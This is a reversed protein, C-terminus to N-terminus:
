WERASSRNWVTEFVIMSDRYSAARGPVTAVHVRRFLDPRADFMPPFISAVFDPHTADLFDITTKGARRFRLAEPTVLGEIDIMRRRSVFTVGGIDDLALLVDQPVNRNLWEGTALHLANIKEVQLAYRGASTYALGMQSVICTAAVAVLFGRRSRGLIVGLGCSFVSLLLLGPQSFRDFTHVYDAASSRVWRTLVAQAPPWWGGKTAAALALLLSVALLGRRLWGLSRMRRGEDLLSRWAHIFGIAGACSYLVLLHMGYRYALMASPEIWSMALPCLVLAAPVVRSRPRISPIAGGSAAGANDQKWLRGAGLLAFPFLIPNTALLRLLYVPIHVLPARVATRVIRAFDGSAIAAILNEGGVKANFTNPMPTSVTRLNFLVAPLMILALVALHPLSKRGLSLWESPRPFREFGDSVVVLAAVVVLALCEPRALAALGFLGTSALGLWRSSSNGAALFLALGGMSLVVYLPIEMGGVAGWVYFRLLAVLVGALVASAVESTLQYVLVMCCLIGALYLIAGLAKTGWVMNGSVAYSGAMALTWLPATSGGIPEGPNFAFGQGEVVNRAFVAHIWADDIPFGPHSAVRLECVLFTALM